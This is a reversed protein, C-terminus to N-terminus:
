TLRGRVNAPPLISAGVRTPGTLISSARARVAHRRGFLDACRLSRKDHTLQAEPFLSPLWDRATDALRAKIASLDHRAAPIFVDNLDIM